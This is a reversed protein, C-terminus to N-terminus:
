SPALHSVDVFGGDGLRLGPKLNASGPISISIKSSKIIYLDLFYLPLVNMRAGFGYM